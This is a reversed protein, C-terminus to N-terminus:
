HGGLAPLRGCTYALSAESPHTSARQAKRCVNLLLTKPHWALIGLWAAAGAKQCLLTVNVFGDSDRVIALAEGTDSRLSDLFRAGEEQGEAAAPQGGEVVVADQMTVMGLHSANRLGNARTRSLVGVFVERVVVTIGNFDGGKKIRQLYYNTLGSEKHFDLAENESAFTKEIGDKALTIPKCAPM